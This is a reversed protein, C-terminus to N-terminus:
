RREWRVANPGLNGLASEISPREVQPLLEALRSTDLSVDAPRPEPMIAEARRNPRVLTADLGMVAAARRMMAFRSMRERGAVHVLGTHETEALRVLIGAATNLDLPTRFEDLFLKQPQGQAVSALIREFFSPRGCRSPGYLL